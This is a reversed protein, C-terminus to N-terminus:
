GGSTRLILTAADVDTGPTTTGILSDFGALYPKLEKDYTTKADAPLMTEVGGRVAAIDIWLLSAHEPGAQAVAAKFRDQDALSDGNKADIVSKVFDTGYSVVVVDDTVAWAISADAPLDTGLAQLGLASGASGLGVVHITTGQYDEESVTLGVQAGGLGILGNLQNFLREASAADTPTVLLGGALSGNDLTIALGAEGMWGTVADFGGLLQLADEVQKVTDKLDPDKALTDKTQALAEGVDHGEALFVTSPPLVDALTSTSTKAAGAGDPHPSRMDLVFSGGEARLSAAVWPIQMDTVSVPLEPLMSALPGALSTASKGVAAVDLYAFALRDGSVSAEAQKFQADTALGKKGETAISAKVSDLDGIALVPGTVAYAPQMGALVAVSGDAPTVLTVTVGDVQETDTTAGQAKVVGDMWTTAKAGDTVSLLLLAHADLADVSTPLSGISAGIQGGFWPEIDNQYSVTGDSAAGAVRDLVESMKVPFAAQDEFGPFAKMLKPLETSQSGPLDLRLEAYAVSDAPTWALVSPDGSEATLVLTGAAAAGAVLLTVLGAVAWKLKSRGPRRATAGAVPATPVAAASAPQAPDVPGSPPAPPVPVSPEGVPGGAAPPAPPPSVQAAAAPAGAAAVPPAPPTMPTAGAEAGSAAAGGPPAPADPPPTPPSSSTASAPAEYAQTPDQDTM